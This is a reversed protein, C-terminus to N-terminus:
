ISAYISCSKFMQAHNSCSKFMIQVHTYTCFKKNDKAKLTIVKKGLKSDNQNKKKKSIGNLSEAEM